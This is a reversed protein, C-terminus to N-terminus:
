LVFWYQFTYKKIKRFKWGNKKFPGLKKVRWLPLCIKLKVWWPRIKITNPRFFPVLHSGSQFISQLSQNECIQSSNALSIERLFLNHEGNNYVTFSCNTLVIFIRSFNWGFSIIHIRAVLSCLSIVVNILM